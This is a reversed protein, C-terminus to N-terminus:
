LLIDSMEVLVKLLNETKQKHVPDPIYPIQLFGIRCKIRRCRCLDFSAPVDIAYFFASFGSEHASPLHLITFVTIPILDAIISLAPWSSLAM